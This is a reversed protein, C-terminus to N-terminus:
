RVWRNHKVDILRRDGADVRGSQQGRLGASGDRDGRTKGPGAVVSYCARRNSDTEGYPSPQSTVRCARIAMAAPAKAALAPNAREWALLAEYSPVRDRTWEHDSPLAQYFSGYEEPSMVSRGQGLAGLALRVRAPTYPERWADRVDFTPM